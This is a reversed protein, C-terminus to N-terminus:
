APLHRKTAICAKLLSTQHHQQEHLYVWHAVGADTQNCADLVSYGKVTMTALGNELPMMIKEAFDICPRM